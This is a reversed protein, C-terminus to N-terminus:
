GKASPKGKGKKKLTGIVRIGKGRKKKAEELKKHIEKEYPLLHSRPKKGIEKDLKLVWLVIFGDKGISPNPSDVYHSIYEFPDPLVDLTPWGQMEIIAFYTLAFCIGATLTAFAKTLWHYRSGILLGLLLVVTFVLISTLAIEGFGPTTFFALTDSWAPTFFALPEKIFSLM